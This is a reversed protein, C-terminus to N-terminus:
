SQIKSALIAAAEPPVDSYNNFRKNSSKSQVLGANNGAFAVAARAYLGFLKMGLPTILIEKSARYAICNTEALNAGLWKVMTASGSIAKGNALDDGTACYYRTGTKGKLRFAGQRPVGAPAEVWKGSNFDFQEVDNLAPLVDRKANLIVESLNPLALALDMPSSELFWFDEVGEAIDILEQESTLNITLFSPRGNDPNVSLGNEQLFNIVSQPWYGLLDIQERRRIIQPAVLAWGTEEGVKNRLIEIFGLTELEQVIRRSTYDGAELKEFATLLSSYTGSVCYQIVDIAINWNVSANVEYRIPSAKLDSAKVPRVPKRSQGEKPSALWSKCLEISRDGCGQCVGVVYKVYDGCFGLERRHAGTYACSGTDLRNLDIHLPTFDPHSDLDWGLLAGFDGTLDTESEIEFNAFFGSVMETNPDTMQFTNNLFEFANGNNVHVITERNHVAVADPTNSSRIFLDREAILDNGDFLGLKYNGDILKKDRLNLEIFGSNSSQSLVTAMGGDAKWDPTKVEIRLAKSNQSIGEIRPPFDRHWFRLSGTTPLRLGDSLVIQSGSVPILCKLDQHVSGSIDVTIIEVDNVLGWGAPINKTKNDFSFGTRANIELFSPLKEWVASDLRVLICMRQGLSAKDIELWLGSEEELAFMVINKPLRRWSKGTSSSIELVSTLLSEPNIEFGNLCEALSGTRKSFSFQKDDLDNITFVQKDLEITSTNIAFSSSFERKGFRNTFHAVIKAKSALLAYPVGDSSVRQNDPVTGDWKMLENCLVQSIEDKAGREWLNKLSQSIGNDEHTLWAQFLGSMDDRTVSDGPTLRLYDFMRPLKKRDFDRVLAQSVAAGVYTTSLSYATPIGHYGGKEVLFTGLAQWLFLIVKRYSEEVSETQYKDEIGLISNLHVYYANGRGGDSGMKEAALTTVALLALMPPAEEASRKAIVNNIWIHTVQEYDMFLETKKLDFRLSRKVADVLDEIASAGGLAPHSSLRGLTEDDLDLYVPSGAAAPSYITEFIAQNWARVKASLM